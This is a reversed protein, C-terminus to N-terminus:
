TYARAGASFSKDGDAKVCRECVGRRRSEPHWLGATKCVQCRDFLQGTEGDGSKDSGRHPIEATTKAESQSDTYLHPSLDPSPNLAKPDIGEALSYRWRTVPEGRKADEEEEMRLVGLMHLASMQRDITTRPKDLRKRVDTPTSRPNKAVDDIIALRLPPMSDRACRIALRVADARELGIAAGGRVLQTLQKAFRTPMEPAHADIVDGRYDFDVGTRALTVLDAAALLYDVEGESVPEVMARMGAIVGAAASALEQRMLTESDVNGIAQRGAAKRITKDASDMRVLVFRDGMAATVDHARDWATTVAGVVVIRGAWTLTRGGDVGIDRHWHGDYIERLAPLVEARKDRSASIIGTVDKIVLLGRDGLKRLLGGTADKSRERKATGSLLAGEGSITSTLVAGAGVLSQVTETKANGPGSIVLLWLPDGGLREVAAAALTANLADQDFNKGLWRKFVEHADSLAMPEAPPLVSM